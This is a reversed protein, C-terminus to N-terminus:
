RQWGKGRRQGRGVGTVQEFNLIFLGCFVNGGSEREKKNVVRRRKRGERKKKSQICM